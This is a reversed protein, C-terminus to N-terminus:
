WSVLVSSQNNAENSGNKNTNNPMSFLM